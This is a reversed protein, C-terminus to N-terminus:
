RINTAAVCVCECLRSPECVYVGPPSLPHITPSLLLPSARVCVFRASVCAWVRGDCCSNSAGPKGPACVCLALRASVCAWVRGDCCAVFRPEAEQWVLCTTVDHPTRAYVECAPMRGELNCPVRWSVQGTREEHPSPWM